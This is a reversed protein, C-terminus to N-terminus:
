LEEQEHRLWHRLREIDEEFVAIEKELQRNRQRMSRLRDSFNDLHEELERVRLAVRDVIEEDSM